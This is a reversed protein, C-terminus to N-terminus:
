YLPLMVAVHSGPPVLSQIRKPWAVMGEIVSEGMERSASKRMWTCNGVETVITTVRKPQREMREWGELM